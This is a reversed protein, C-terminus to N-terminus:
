YVKPILSNSNIKKRKFDWTGVIIKKIKKGSGFDLLDERKLHVLVKDLSGLDGSTLLYAEEPDCLKCYIILQGLNVLTFDTKKAEIFFIKAKNKWIVIGLVDIQIKLGIIQPYYKIVDHEILVKDLFTNHCDTIIIECKEKYYKDQLHTALWECMGPYLEEERQIKSIM